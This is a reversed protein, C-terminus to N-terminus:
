LKIKVVYKINRDNIHIIKAAPLALMHCAPICTYYRTYLGNIEKYM